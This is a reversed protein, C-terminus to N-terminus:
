DVDKNDRGPSDDWAEHESDTLQSKESQREAMRESPSLTDQVTFPRYPTMFLPPGFGTPMGALPGLGAPYGAPFPHHPHLLDPRPPNHAPLLSPRGLLAEATFAAARPSFASHVGPYPMTPSLPTFASKVGSLVAKSSNVLSNRAHIQSLGPHLYPSSAANIINNNEARSHQTTMHHHQQAITDQASLFHEIAKVLDGNCGQLVLELVTRKQFPFVRELIEINNLRGPRFGTPIASPHTSGGVPKMNNDRMKNASSDPTTLNMPPAVPSPVRPPAQPQQQQQQQQQQPHHHHHHPSYPHPRQHSPPPSPHGTPRPALSSTM